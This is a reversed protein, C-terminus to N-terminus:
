REPTRRRGEEMLARFAKADRSDVAEVFRELAARLRAIAARSHPNRAQIEYYVDPSERVVTGALRELVRFTTSRVVHESEPLALAFAIAAGHALSLLDAMIRDHEVLPLRVLKATTPSFLREVAAAAEADGTDCIVVDADRLLEIKPGFMPHISAVRGGARQLRRIAEILPTKISSVDVIVGPPPAECWHDYIVATTAPPTSCLVLDASALAARALANEAADAAPDMVGTAYGQSSLFGDLWRGMRGAGGFVIAKRGAGLASLRLREQDQVSVSARVLRAVLDEALSADLGLEAAISRTRDFVAREQAFDVTPLNHARKQEGLKRALEIRQAARELLERDLRAIRERLEEM